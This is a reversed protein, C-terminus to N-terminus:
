CISIELIRSCILLLHEWMPIEKSMLRICVLITLSVAWTIISQQLWLEINDWTKPTEFCFLDLRMQLHLTKPSVSKLLGKCGDKAMLSLTTDKVTLSIDNHFFFHKAVVNAIRAGIFKKGQLNHWFDSTSAILSSWYKIFSKTVILLEM